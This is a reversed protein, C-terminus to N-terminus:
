EPNPPAHGGSSVFRVTVLNGDPRQVHVCQGKIVIGAARQDTIHYVTVNQFFATLRLTCCILIVRHLLKVKLMFLQRRAFDTGAFHMAQVLNFKKGAM